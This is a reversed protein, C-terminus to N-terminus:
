EKKLGLRNMYMKALEYTLIIQESDMLSNWATKLPEDGFKKVEEQSCERFMFDFLSKMDNISSHRKSWELIYDYEKTGKIKMKRFASHSM